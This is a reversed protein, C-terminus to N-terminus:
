DCHHQFQDPSSWGQEGILINFWCARGVAKQERPFTLPQPSLGGLDDNNISWLGDLIAQTTPPEPMRAGAKELIKGSVWGLALGGSAKLGSGFRAIADHFEATAPTDDQFYPFTAANAVFGDRMFNPDKALTDNIVTSASAYLPHFSQRACSASVRLFTSAEAAIFLVEAGANRASLCEATFDPQAISIDAKYVITMGRPVTHQGAQAAFDKCLQVEVCTLVGLKKKGRAVAQTADSAFASEILYNGAPGQPFLMPSDYAWREGGSMGIVPIRKATVYDLGSPGSLADVNNLFALVKKNDVLDQIAAKNRAPDGGNDAVIVSVPHGNLGGRASVAKAWLQVGQVMPGISSSAPGSITAVSGVKVVSAGPQPAEPRTPPVPLAPKKPAPGADSAPAAPSRDRSPDAPSPAAKPQGRGPPPTSTAAGASTSGPGAGSSGSDVTSPPPAGPSDPAVGSGPPADDATAPAPQAGNVASTASQEVRTGCATLVLAAVAFVMLTRKM